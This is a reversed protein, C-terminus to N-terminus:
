ELIAVPTGLPLIGALETIEDNPLRICGKSVENGIADPDNTGHIGIVGEGGAFNELVNSFGSLGFAYPGYVTNPNPPQLLEKIYFVGGPTPTDTSGIAVPSERILEDRQYLRLEREGRSVEIRYTNTSLSVDSARIWGTTGNPRVPLDVHLWTDRLDHVLFVLPGGNETPNTLTHTVESSGPEEHVKLSSVAAQAVVNIQPDTLYKELAEGPPVLTLPSAPQARGIQGLAETTPLPDSSATEDSDVGGALWIAGGTLAVAVVAGATRM